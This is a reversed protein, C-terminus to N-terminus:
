YSIFVFYIFFSKFVRYLLFPCPELGLNSVRWLHARPGFHFYVCYGPCFQADVSVVHNRPVVLFLIRDRQWSCLYFVNSSPTAATLKQSHLLHKLIITNKLINQNNITIIGASYIYIFIMHLMISCLMNVNPLMKNSLQNFVFIDNYFM